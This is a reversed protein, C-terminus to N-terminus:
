ILNKGYYVNCFVPSPYIGDKLCIFENNVTTTTPKTTVLTMCAVNQPWDCLKLNPNYLLGNPCAIEYEVLIGSPVATECQLFKSCDTPHPSFRQGSPCKSYDIATTTTTQKTSTPSCVVNQPMDCMKINNNFLLISPCTKEFEVLIGTSLRDCQFYKSCDTPHPSFRQGSPCKSYDIATTTATATTTTTTIGSKCNLISASLCQQTTYDFALGSICVLEIGSVCVIM